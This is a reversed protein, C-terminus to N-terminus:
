GRLYEDVVPQLSEFIKQYGAQNPHLGDNWLYDRTWTDKDVGVTIFRLGKKQCLRQTIDNFMFRRENTFYSVKGDGFPSQKPSVKTEDVYWNSVFVVLKSREQLVDLLHTVKSTCEEHTCLFNDPTNQAKADNGGVSVLTMVDNSRAYNKYIWDATDTVFEITSGAKSFNFVEANEGVGDAGYMKAHVYRKVLDGWGGSEAGVGYVSSAGLIVLQKM